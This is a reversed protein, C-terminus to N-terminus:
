LPPLCRIIILRKVVDLHDDDKLRLNLHKRTWMCPAHTTAKVARHRATDLVHCAAWKYMRDGETVSALFESLKADDDRIWTHVDPSASAAAEKAARLITEVAIGLLWRDFNFTDPKFCM